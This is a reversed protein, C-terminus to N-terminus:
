LAANRERVRGVPGPGTPITHRETLEAGPVGFFRDKFEEGPDLRIRRQFIGQQFELDPVM